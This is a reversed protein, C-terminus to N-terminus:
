ARKGKCITKTMRFAIYIVSWSTRAKPATLKEAHAVAKASKALTKVEAM